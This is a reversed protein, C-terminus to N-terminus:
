GRRSKFPLLVRAARSARGGDESAGGGKPIDGGGGLGGGGSSSRLRTLSFAGGNSGGHSASSRPTGTSRREDRKLQRVARQTGALREKFEKKWSKYRAVLREYEQAPDM